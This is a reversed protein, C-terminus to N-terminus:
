DLVSFTEPEFGPSFLNEEKQCKYKNDKQELARRRRQKTTHIRNQNGIKPVVAQTSTIQM